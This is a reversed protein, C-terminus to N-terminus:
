KFLMDKFLVLTKLINDWLSSQKEEEQEYDSEKNSTNGADISEAEKIFNHVHGEYVNYQNGVVIFAHPEGDAIFRQVYPISSNKMAEAYVTDSNKFPVTTDKTGHIILLPVECKRLSNMADQKEAFNEETLGVDITNILYDRLQEDTLIGNLGDINLIGLLMSVLESDGVSGLLDKLIGTMSTYGCDDVLGIVNKDKVTQGDVELGSLFLTTAGGLSVGHVLIQNDNNAFRTNIYTLWDFVDLSELYGMGTSGSTNGAGRLDPALINYGQELYMEGLADTIAQGNMMFGHILVIWKNSKPTGDSNLDGAYYINASLEASYKSGALKTATTSNITVTEDPVMMVISSNFLSLIEDLINQILGQSNNSDDTIIKNLLQNSINSVAASNPYNKRLELVKNIMQKKTTNYDSNFNLGKAYSNFVNLFNKYANRDSYQEDPIILNMYDNYKYSSHAQVSSFTSLAIFLVILIIALTKHFLFKKRM